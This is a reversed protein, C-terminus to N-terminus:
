IQWCFIGSLVLLPGEFFDCKLGYKSGGGTPPVQGTSLLPTRHTPSGLLGWQSARLRWKLLHCNHLRYIQVEFVKGIMDFVAPCQFHFHCPNPPCLKNSKSPLQDGAGGEQIAGDVGEKREGREVKKEGGARVTYTRFGGTLCHNQPPHKKLRQKKIKVINRSFCCLVWLMKCRFIRFAYKKDNKHIGPDNKAWFERMAFSFFDFLQRKKGKQNKKVMKQCNKANLFVWSEFHTKPTGYHSKEIFNRKQKKQHEKPKKWFVCHKTKMFGLFAFHPSSSPPPTTSVGDTWVM